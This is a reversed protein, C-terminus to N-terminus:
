AGAGVGTLIRIIFYTGAIMMLSALVLNQFFSSTLALAYRRPALNIFAAAMAIVLYTSITYGRSLSVIGIAYAAITGAIYPRFAILTPDARKMDIRTVGRYSLAIIGLFCAGGVIGLEAFNQIYTNHAVQGVLEVQQDHGVGFLPSGKFLTLANSWLDLRSQFTNEPDSMDVRTQRGGYALLLIPLALGGLLMARTLGARLTIAVAAGGVLAILGGRSYTLLLAYVFYGIPLWWGLKLLRSSTSTAFCFCCGIAVILMLSLDNPDNFIGTGVLRRIVGGESNSDAQRISELSPLDILGDYSFVSLTTLILTYACIAILFVRLRRISDVSGLVALYFLIIKLFEFGGIRTAYINGRILNSLVIFVGFAIVLLTISRARVNDRIQHLMRRASFVLCFALITQYVPWYELDPFLDSPRVVLAALALLLLVFAAHGAPKLPTASYPKLFPSFGEDHDVLSSAAPSITVGISM